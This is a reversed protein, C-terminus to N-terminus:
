NQKNAELMKEMFNKKLFFSSHIKYAVAEMMETDLTAGDIASFVVCSLNFDKLQKLSSALKEPRKKLNIVYIEDIGQIEEIKRRSDFNKLLDKKEYSFLPFFFVIPIFFFNIYM